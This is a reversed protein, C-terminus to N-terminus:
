ASLVDDLHDIGIDFGATDSGAGSYLLDPKRDGRTVFFDDGYLLDARPDTRATHSLAFNRGYARAFM